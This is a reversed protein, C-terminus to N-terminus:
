DKEYRLRLAKEEEKLKELEAKMSRLKEEQSSMMSDPVAKSELDPKSECVYFDVSREVSGEDYDEDEDESTEHNM